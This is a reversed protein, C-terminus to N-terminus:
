RPLMHPTEPTHFAQCMDCWNDCRKASEEDGIERYLKAAQSLNGNKENMRAVWRSSEYPTKFTTKM